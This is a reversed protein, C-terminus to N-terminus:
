DHLSKTFQVPNSKIIAFQSESRLWSLMIAKALVKIDDPVM